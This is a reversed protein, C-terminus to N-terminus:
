TLLQAFVRGTGNLSLDPGEAGCGVDSLHLVETEHSEHPVRKANRRDEAHSQQSQHQM